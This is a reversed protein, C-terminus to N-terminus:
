GVRRHFEGTSFTVCLKNVGRQLMDVSILLRCFRDIRCFLFPIPLQGSWLYYVGRISIFSRRAGMCKGNFTRTVHLNRAEMFITTSLSGLTYYRKEKQVNGGEVNQLILQKVGFNRKKAHTSMNKLETTFYPKHM